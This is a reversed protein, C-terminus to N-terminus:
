KREDIMTKKKKKRERERERERKRKKTKASTGEQVMKKEENKKEDDCDQVM